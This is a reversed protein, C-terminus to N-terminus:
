LDVIASGGQLLSKKKDLVQTNLEGDENKSFSDENQRPLVKAKLSAIPLPELCRQTFPAIDSDTYIAPNQGHKTSDMEKFKKSKYFERVGLERAFKKRIHEIEKPTFNMVMPTTKEAPFTYEVNDWKASFDETTWNTFKFVGDFEEPM